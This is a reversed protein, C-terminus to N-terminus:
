WLPCFCLAEGLKIIQLSLDYILQMNKEKMEELHDGFNYKFAMTAGCLLKGGEVAAFDSMVTTVHGYLQKPLSM